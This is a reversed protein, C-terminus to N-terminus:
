SDYMNTNRGGRLFNVCDSSQDRQARIIGALVVMQSAPNSFYRRVLRMCCPTPSSNLIIFFFFPSVIPILVLRPVCLVAGVNLLKHWCTNQNYGRFSLDERVKEVM